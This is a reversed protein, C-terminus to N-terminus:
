VQLEGWTNCAANDQATAACHEYCRPFIHGGGRVAPPAAHSLHAERPVRLPYAAACSLGSCVPVQPSSLNVQLVSEEGFHPAITNVIVKRGVNCVGLEDKTRDVGCEHPCAQWSLNCMHCSSHLVVFSEQRMDHMWGQEAQEFM